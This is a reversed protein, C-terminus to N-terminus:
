RTGTLLFPDPIVVSENRSPALSGGPRGFLQKFKESPKWVRASYDATLGSLIRQDMLNKGTQDYAKGM